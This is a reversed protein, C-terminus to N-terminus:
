SARFRYNQTFIEQLNVSKWLVYMLKKTLTLQVNVYTIKFILLSPHNSEEPFPLLRRRQGIAIATTFLLLFAVLMCLWTKYIYICVKQFRVANKNFIVQTILTNFVNIEFPCFELDPVIIKLEYLYKDWTPTSRRRRLCYCYYLKHLIYAWRDLIRPPQVSKDCIWIGEAAAVSDRRIGCCLRPRHYKHLSDSHCFESVSYCSFCGDLCQGGGFIKNRPAILTGSPLRPTQGHRM